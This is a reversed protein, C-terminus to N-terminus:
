CGSQNDRSFLADYGGLLRYLLALGDKMHEIRAEMDEIEALIQAREPDDIM